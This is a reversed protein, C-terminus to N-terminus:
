KKGKKNFKINFQPINDPARFVKYGDGSYMIFKHNEINDYYFKKFESYSAFRQGYSNYIGELERRGQGVNFFINYNSNARLTPPVLHCYQTTVITTILYHRGMISLKKLIDNSLENESCCDDLILFARNRFGKMLNKKQISIMSKIVNEDYEEYIYKNPIYSFSGEFATNSMVVGYSFPNHISFERMLYKLLYSKGSGSRGNLIIFCSESKIIDDM